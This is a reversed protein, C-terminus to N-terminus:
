QYERCSSCAGPEDNEDILDCVATWWECEPCLELNASIMAEEAVDVSVDMEDAICMITKCTGEYEQAKAVQEKTAIVLTSM